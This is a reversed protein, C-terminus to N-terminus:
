VELRIDWHPNERHSGNMKRARILLTLKSRGVRFSLVRFANRNAAREVADHM